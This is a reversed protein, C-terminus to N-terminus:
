RTRDYTGGQTRNTKPALIAVIVPVKKSALRITRMLDEVDSPYKVVKSSLLEYEAVQDHGLLEPTKITFGEVRHIM